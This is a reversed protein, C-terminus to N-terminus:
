IENEDKENRLKEYYSIYWDAKKMDEEGNKYLARKRYKWANCLCFHMVATKGFILEMEKIAEMGHTYHLPHEVSDNEEKISCNVQSNKEAGFLLKYHHNIEEDSICDEWCGIAPLPFLPCGNDCEHEECYKEIANRKEEITM